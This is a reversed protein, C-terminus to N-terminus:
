LSKYEEKWKELFKLDTELKKIEYEIRTKTRNYIELVFRDKDHQNQELRKFCKMCFMINTELLEKECNICKM